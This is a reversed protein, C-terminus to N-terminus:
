TFTFSHPISHECLSTVPIPVSSFVSAHFVSLLPSDYVWAIYLTHCTECIDSLEPIYLYTIVYDFHEAMLRERVTDLYPQHATTDAQVATEDMVVLSHGMGKLAFAIDFIGKQTYVFLFKM